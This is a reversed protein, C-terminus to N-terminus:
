RIAWATAVDQLYVSLSKDLAGSALGARAEAPIAGDRDGAEPGLLWIGGRFPQRHNGLPNQTHGKRQGARTLSGAYGAKQVLEVLQPECTRAKCRGYGCLRM